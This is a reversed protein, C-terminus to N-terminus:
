RLRRRDLGFRGFAPGNVRLDARVQLVILVFAPKIVAAGLPSVAFLAKAGDHIVQGSVPLGVANEGGVVHVAAHTHFQVDFFGFPDEQEVGRADAVIFNPFDVQTVVVTETQTVFQNSAGIQRQVCVNADVILLLVERVSGALVVSRQAQAF